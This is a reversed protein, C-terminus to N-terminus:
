SRSACRFVPQPVDVAAATGIPFEAEGFVGPQAGLTRPKQKQDGSTAVRRRSFRPRLIGQHCM